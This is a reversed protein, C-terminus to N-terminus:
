PTATRVGGAEEALWFGGAPATSAAAGKPDSATRLTGVASGGEHGAVLVSIMCAVYKEGFRPRNTDTSGIRPFTTLEFDPVPAPHRTVCHCAEGGPSERRFRARFRFRARTRPGPDESLHCRTRALSEHHPDRVEVVVKRRLQDGLV